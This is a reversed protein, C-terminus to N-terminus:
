IQNWEINNSSYGKVRHIHQSGILKSSAVAFAMFYAKVDMIQQIATPLRQFDKVSMHIPM